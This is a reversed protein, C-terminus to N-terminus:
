GDLRHAERDCEAAYALLEWAEAGDGLSTARQRCLAATRRGERITLIDVELDAPLARRAQERRGLAMGERFVRESETLPRSFFTRRLPDAFLEGVRLAAGAAIEQYTCGAFCHVLKRGDDGLALSLSNASDEHAPCAASWGGPVARVRHFHSLFSELTMAMVMSEREPAPRRLRMHHCVVGAGALVCGFRCAPMYSLVRRPFSVVEQRAGCSATYIPAMFIAVIVQGNQM